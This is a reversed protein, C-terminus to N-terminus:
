STATGTRATASRPPDCRVGVLDRRPQRRRPAYYRWSVNHADLLDALTSYSFCPFIGRGAVNNVLARADSPSDCGWFFQSSSGEDPNDVVHASQGAILYQHAAFSPGFVPQFMRDALTYRQALDWYLRVEDHPLYLLRADGHRIRKASDVHELDWGDM